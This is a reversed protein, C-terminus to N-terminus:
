RQRQYVGFGAGDAPKRYLITRRRKRNEIGEIVLGAAIGMEVALDGGRQHGFGAFQQGLRRGNVLDVDQGFLRRLLLGRHWADDMKQIVGLRASVAKPRDKTQGVVYRLDAGGRCWLKM